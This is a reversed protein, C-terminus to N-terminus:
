EAQSFLAAEHEINYVSWMNVVKIITLIIPLNTFGEYIDTIKFLGPVETLM